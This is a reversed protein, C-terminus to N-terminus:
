SNLKTEHAFKIIMNELEEDLYHILINIANPRSFLRPTLM